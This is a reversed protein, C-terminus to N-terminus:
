AFREATLDISPIDPPDNAAIQSVLRGTAPGLAMGMTSHGTALILNKVKRSRGIIPLGDPAIVRLGRWIEIPEFRDTEPLYRHAAKLIADLRKANISLDLGSLELTGAFRVRDNLPTVAVRAENLFLPMSMPEGAWACTLSYGKAPQLPLRISLDRALRGSWAGGALVVQAPHIEGRTTRVVMIERERTEFGFVETRPRLDVGREVCAKALRHVFAAPDLHADGSLFLGGIVTPNLRPGMDRIEAFSLVEAAIGYAHMLDAEIYAERMGQSTTFVKLLGAQRYGFDLGQDQSLDSYLDVSLRILDRMMPIARDARERSCAKRFRWLWLLLDLSLRPKIYFPSASDMLWRLGQGLVGPAALPLIHSSLILGANGHSAGGGIEGAEVLTVDFGRGALYYAASVGIVGGGIVLITNDGAM